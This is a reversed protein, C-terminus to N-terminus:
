EARCGEEDLGFDLEPAGAAAMAARVRAPEPAIVLLHGGGGAGTLAAGEAGAALACRRLEAFRPTSAAPLRESKLRWGENLLKGIADVRGEELAACTERALEETARLNRALDRDGALAREVQASLLDSASRVEGTSFLLCRERLAAVAVRPLSLRRVDVGGDPRFTLANAGGHAAAYQDQKGVARGLDGLEIASAAEALEGAALREGRARRLAAVVAVTYAGSSGLGTGPAVESWSRLELGSGDWHRVLAARLIPHAVDAVDDVRERELHDLRLEGGGLPAVRVRVYRDIATSVVFGGHSRSHSPLDTGGGGLSIRLPARVTVANPVRWHDLM